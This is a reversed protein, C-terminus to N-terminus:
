LSIGMMKAMEEVDKKTSLRAKGQGHPVIGYEGLVALHLKLICELAKELSIKKHLHLHDNRIDLVQHLLSGTKKVKFHKKLINIKARIDNDFPDKLKSKLIEDQVREDAISICLAEVAMGCLALAAVFYGDIYLSRAQTAFSEFYKIQVLQYPLQGWRDIRQALEEQFRQKLFNEAPQTQKLRILNPITDLFVTLETGKNSDSL